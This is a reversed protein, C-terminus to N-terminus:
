GRFFQNQARRTYRRAKERNTPTGVTGTPFGPMNPESMVAWKEGM